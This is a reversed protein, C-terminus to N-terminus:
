HLTLIRVMFGDAGWVTPSLTFPICLFNLPLNESLNIYAMFECISQVLTLTSLLFMVTVYILLLIRMRNSYIGRKKQLLHFCNGSLVIVIGYAIASFITGLLQLELSLPDPTYQSM